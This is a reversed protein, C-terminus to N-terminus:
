FAPAPSFQVRVLTGQGPNSKIEIQGNLKKAREKMSVLGIGSQNEPAKKDFGQGNDQIELVVQGDTEYVQVSVQIAASHKLVNNLAEQAIGYIESQDQVSLSSRMHISLFTEMRARQEVMALRNRLASELGEQELLSPRLEYVLLRMEKLTQQIIESMQELVTVVQDTDGIHAYDLAGDTNLALSYLSQSLSDHLERALRQREEMLVAQEAKLRLSERGIAVGIQGAIESLLKYEYGDSQIKEKGFVSLVGLNKGQENIPFLNAHKFNTVRLYKPLTLFEAPSSPLALPQGGQTVFGWYEAKVSMSGYHAQAKAAIGEAAVLKLTGMQEDVLHIMGSHNSIVELLSALMRQLKQDLGIEKVAIDSIKYFLQLQQQAQKQKTIDKHTGIIHQVAKGARREKAKAQAQIWKWEGSKTRMPYEAFFVQTKGRLHDNWAKLVQTAYDPHLLSVWIGPISIFEELTFGLMTAYYSNVSTSNSVMDYDWLGLETAELALNLREESERLADEAQESHNQFLQDATPFENTPSDIIRSLKM